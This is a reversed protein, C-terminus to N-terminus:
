HGGRNGDGGCSARVSTSLPSDPTAALFQNAEVRADDIRGLKCLASVREASREEALIGHPFRRAHEELLALARAADGARLAEDAGRVLSTEVAIPSV